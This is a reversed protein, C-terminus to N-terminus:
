RIGRLIRLAVSVGVLLVLLNILRNRSMTRPNGMLKLKKAQRPFKKRAKSFAIAISQRQPRGEKRQRSIEKSIFDKVNKPLKPMSRRSMSPITRSRTTGLSGFFGKRQRDSKFVM